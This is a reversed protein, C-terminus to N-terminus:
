LWFLVQSLCSRPSTMNINSRDESMAIINSRASIILLRIGIYCYVSLSLLSDSIMSTVTINWNTIYNKHLIITGDTIDTIQSCYWSFCWSLFSSLSEILTLIDQYKAHQFYMGISQLSFSFLKTGQDMLILIKEENSM